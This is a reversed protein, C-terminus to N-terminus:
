APQFGDAMGLRLTRARETSDPHLRSTLCARHSILTNSGPGDNSRADLVLGGGGASLTVPEQCFDCPWTFTELDAPRISLRAVRALAM